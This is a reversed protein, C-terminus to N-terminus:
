PSLSTNEKSAGRLRKNGSSYKGGYVQAPNEGKALGEKLNVSSGNTVQKSTTNCNRSSKKVSNNLPTSPRIKTPTTADEISKKPTAQDVTKLQDQQQFSNIIELEKKTYKKFFSNELTFSLNIKLETFFMQRASSAKYQEMCFTTDRLAFYKNEQALMYPILRLEANDDQKGPPVGGLLSGKDFTNCYM